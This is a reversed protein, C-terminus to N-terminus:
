YEPNDFKRQLIGSKKYHNIGKEDAKTGYLKDLTSRSDPPPPSQSM